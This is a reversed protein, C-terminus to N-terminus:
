GWARPEVAPDLGRWGALHFAQASGLDGLRGGLM